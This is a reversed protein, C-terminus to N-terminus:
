FKKSNGRHTNICVCLAEQTWVYYSEFNKNKRYWNFKAQQRVSLLLINIRKDSIQLIQYSGTAKTRHRHISEQRIMVLGSEYITTNTHILREDFGYLASGLPYQVQCRCFCFCNNFSHSVIFYLYHNCNYHFSVTTYCSIYIYLTRCFYSGCKSPCYFDFSVLYM